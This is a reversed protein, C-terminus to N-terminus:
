CYKLPMNSLNPLYASAPNIESVVLPSKVSKLDAVHYILFLLRNTKDIKLLLMKKEGSEPTWLSM